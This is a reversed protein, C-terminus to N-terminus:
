ISPIAPPVLPIRSYTSPSIERINRQINRLLFKLFVGRPVRPNIGPFGTSSITSSFVTPYGHFVRTSIPRNELLFESFFFTQIKSFYRYSDLLIRQSTNFFSYPSSHWLCISCFRALFGPFCELPFKNLLEVSFASSNLPFFGQPPIELQTRVEVNM